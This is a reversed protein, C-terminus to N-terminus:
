VVAPVILAGWTTLMFGALTTLYMRTQKALALKIEGKHDAFESRMEGRFEAFESRMEGRFEAFEGRLTSELVKIDDKTALQDRGEPIICQMLTETAEKGIALVLRNALETREVETVAM